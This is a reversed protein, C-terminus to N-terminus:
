RVLMMKNTATIDGAVLRMFYIGSPMAAGREDRGDWQVEHVAAKMPADILTCIRRGRVDHIAVVVHAPQKLEFSAATSPNFPNPRAGGLRAAAGPVDETVVSPDPLLWRAINASNKDGAVGFSGGVYLDSDWVAMARLTKSSNLVFGSGYSNWSKGDWSALGSSCPNGGAADFHGGVVVQGNAIVMEQVEADYDPLRVLGGGLDDWVAGNWRAIGKVPVGGAVSMFGGVILDNGHVIAKRAERTVNFGDDGPLWASGNWRALNECAVGEIVDFRGYVVFDGKYVVGGSKYATYPENLSVAAPINTLDAGDYSALGSAPVGDIETFSGILMLDDGYPVLEYVYEPYQAGMLPEWTAGNWKAFSIYDESPPLSFLGSAYLEGNWELLCNIRPRNLGFVGFGDGLPTWSSGNWSAVGPVSDGGAVKFFGAAVLEGNFRCLSWVERDTGQEDFGSWWLQDGDAPIRDIDWSTLCNAPNGTMPIFGGGVWLKEQDACITNVSSMGSGLPTWHEDDTWCAVNRLTLAGTQSIGNVFLRGESVAMDTVFINWCEWDDPGVMVCEEPVFGAGLQEWDSGDWRGIRSCPVGGLHLFEGGAVVGNYYELAYVDGDAGGAYESWSAGNWRALHATPVGGANVFDGGVIMAGDRELMSRVRDDVGGGPSSWVVGNWRAINNVSAGGAESLLGGVYLGGLGPKLVDAEGSIGGAMDHWTSGDWRAIHRLSIKGSSTFEGSAVLDGNWVALATVNDDFGDGMTHWQDGDWRAIRNVQTTGAALFRGGVILDGNWMCLAKATTELGAGETLPASMWGAGDWLAIRNAVLDGARSFYGVLWWDGNWELADNVGGNFEPKGVGGAMDVYNAGDWIVAGRTTVAGAQDFNGGVLIDDGFAKLFRVHGSGDVGGGVESWASGDWRIFNDAEVGELSSFDGGAYLYGGHSLLAKVNDSAAGTWDSIPEFTTGVSRAIGNVPVNNATGFRGGVIMDGEHECLALVEGDMGAGYAAWSSGNWRALHKLTTGRDGTYWIYGGAILWGNFDMLVKPADSFGSGYGHLNAGDFGVIHSSWGSPGEVSVDGGIVLRGGHVTMATVKAMTFGYREEFGWWRAGDYVALNDCDVSGFTRFQGGVFIEGQYICIAEVTGDFGPLGFGEAWPEDSATKDGSAPLLVPAGSGPDFRLLRSGSDLAGEFGSARLADLDIEGREDLFNEPIPGDNAQALGCLMLLCLAFYLSRM